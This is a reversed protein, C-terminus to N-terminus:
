SVKDTVSQEIIFLFENLIFLSTFPDNKNRELLCLYFPFCFFKVDKNHLACSFDKSGIHLFVGLEFDGNLDGDIVRDHLGLVKEYIEELCVGM